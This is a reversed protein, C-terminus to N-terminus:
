RVASRHARIGGEQSSEINPLKLGLVARPLSEAGKVWPNSPHCSLSQRARGRLGLGHPRQGMRTGPHFRRQRGELWSACELDPERGEAADFLQDVERFFQSALREEVLNLPQDEKM